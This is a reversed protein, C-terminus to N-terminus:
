SPRRGALIEDRREDGDLLVAVRRDPSSSKIMHLRSRMAPCSVVTL